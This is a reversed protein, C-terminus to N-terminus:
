LADSLGRRIHFRQGRPSFFDPACIFHVESVDAKSSFKTLASIRQTGSEEVDGKDNAKWIEKFEGQYYRLYLEM